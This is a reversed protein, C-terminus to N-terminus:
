PGAAPIKAVDAQYAADGDGAVFDNKRFMLVNSGPQMNDIIFLVDHAPDRYEENEKLHSPLGTM